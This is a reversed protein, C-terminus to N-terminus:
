DPHLGEEVDDFADGLARIAALLEGEEHRTLDLLVFTDDRASAGCDRAGLVAVGRAEAACRFADGTIGEPLDLRVADS